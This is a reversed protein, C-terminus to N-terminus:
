IRVREVGLHAWTSLLLGVTISDPLARPAKMLSFYMLSKPGKSPSFHSLEVVADRESIEKFLWRAWDLRSHNHYAGILSNVISLDWETGHWQVGGHIQPDLNWCLRALSFKSSLLWTQSVDIKYIQHFIDVAEALLGRHVYGTIISNWSVM